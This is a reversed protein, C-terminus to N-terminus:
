LPAPFDTGHTSLHQEKLLAISGNLSPPTPTRAQFVVRGPIQDFIDLTKSLVEFDLFPVDKTSGPHSRQDKRDDSRSVGRIRDVVPSSAQEQKHALIYERDRGAYQNTRITGL